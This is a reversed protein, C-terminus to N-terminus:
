SNWSLRSNRCEAGEGGRDRRVIACPVTTATAQQGSPAATEDLVHCLLRPWQRQPAGGHPQLATKWGTPSAALGALLLASPRHPPGLRM